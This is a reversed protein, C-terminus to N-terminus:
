VDPILTSNKDISFSGTVECMTLNINGISKNCGVSLCVSLCDESEMNGCYLPAYRKGIKLGAPAETTGGSVQVTVQVTVVLERSQLQWFSRRLHLQPDTRLLNSTSVRLTRRREGQSSVSPSVLDDM